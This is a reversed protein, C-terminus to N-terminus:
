DSTHRLGRVDVNCAKLLNSLDEVTIVVNGPVTSGSLSPSTSDKTAAWLDSSRFERVMCDTDRSAVHVSQLLGRFNGELDSGAPLEVPFIGVVDDGLTDDSQAEGCGAAALLSVVAIAALQRRSM